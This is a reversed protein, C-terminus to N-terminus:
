NSLEAGNKVLNYGEVIVKDGEKIGKTIISESGNSETTVIYTKQAILKNDHEKAIFIYKGKFDQKIIISPVTLADNIEFDKFRVIALLNPKLSNDKNNIKLQAMFTRNAPKIVNAIRYFKANITLNPFTPFSVIADDGKKISAIYKESVDANVYFTKINVLQIIRMGPAALEGKKLAIEDVIGSIPATIKSKSAQLKLSNLKSELSEKNTKAELYQIESGIKKSWLDNQKEYVVKALDYAAEVEKISANIIDANLSVLLQGKNVYQGESVHITKIQGSIEPSIFASNVAELSASVDVYHAFHQKTVTQLKVLVNSNAKTKGKDSLKKELNEIKSEIQLIEERYKSIEDNISKDTQQTGGCAAAFLLLILINKKM